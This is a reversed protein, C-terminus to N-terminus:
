LRLDLFTERRDYSRSFEQPTCVSSPGSVHDAESSGASRKTDGGLASGRVSLAVIVVGGREDTEQKKDRAVGTKNHGLDFLLTLM